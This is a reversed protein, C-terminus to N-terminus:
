IEVGDMMLLTEALEEESLLYLETDNMSEQGAALLQDLNSFKEDLPDEDLFALELTEYEEIHNHEIENKATTPHNHEAGQRNQLTIFVAGLLILFLAALSLWPTIGPKSAHEKVAAQKIRELSLENLPPVNVASSKLLSMLSEHEHRLQQYDPNKLLLELAQAQEASLEASEQLLLLQEFQEKNM